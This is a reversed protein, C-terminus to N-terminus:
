REHAQNGGESDLHLPLFTGSLRLTRSGAAIEARWRGDGSSGGSGLLPAGDEEAEIGTLRLRQGARSADYDFGLSVKDLTEEALDLRRSTLEGTCRLTDRLDDGFGNASLDFEGDVSGHGEWELADLFGRLRYRPEAAGLHIFGRGFIRGGSLRAQVEAVDISDGTWLVHGNLKSISYGALNLTGIAVRGDWRRAALWPPAPVQRFALTRELLGSRLGLVPRFVREVETASLDDVSLTFRVPQAAPPQWYM